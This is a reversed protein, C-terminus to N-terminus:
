TFRLVTNFHDAWTPPAFVSKAAAQSEQERGKTLSEIANRWQYRDTENAYVPIDGLVERIAPLDSCVVPVGLAAAEAAPLGFGEARSPFLLGRSGALLAAIQADPLGPMERVAGGPRLADLRDFVPKNNWGRAGCILLQPTAAGLDTQMQQWVDLLLDHGKRPEITGLTVFRPRAPDVGAPLAGPIPVPVGLHAVVLRPLAGWRQMHAAARQRTHATNCIVLGAGAAVRRLMARFTEPTGPRQYQPFDLPIVDHLLVSVRAGIARRAGQLMRETLNSHGVNLYATGQPLHRALMHPLGVPLCRALAMRRLDSEARRVAQPVGRLGRSLADAAGWPVAGAAREAIAAAGAADLLVYGLATRAIAFLPERRGALHTLYAREVRDVGTAM